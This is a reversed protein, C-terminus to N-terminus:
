QMKALAPVRKVQAPQSLQCAGFFRDPYWSMEEQVADNSYQTWSPLPPRADVRVHSVAATRAAARRYATPAHLPHSARRRSAHQEPTVTDRGGGSLPSLSAANSALMSTAFVNAADPRRVHSHLDFVRKGNYV